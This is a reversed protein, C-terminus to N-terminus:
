VLTWLNWAVLTMYRKTWKTYSKTKRWFKSLEQMILPSNYCKLNHFIVSVNKTLKLYINCSWHSSGRYKETLHCHDRVKYNGLGFLKDCIWCKNNSQFKQEYEASM